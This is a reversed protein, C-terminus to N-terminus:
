AAPVRRRARTAVLLSALILVPIGGFVVAWIAFDAAFRLLTAFAAIAAAFTRAPEWKALPGPIPETTSSVSLSITSYAVRDKTAKQQAALQEIQQRLQSLAVQVKLMEDVTKASAFLQLYRGEEARLALLRADLDVLQDTVDKADVSSSIVEGDLKKLAAVADDFRDAPVRMTLNASRRDNNISESLGLISGGFRRAIDRAADATEWPDDSKMAVNATVILDRDASALRAVGEAPASGQFSPINAKSADTVVGSPPMAAPTSSTAGACAAGLVVAVLLLPVTLRRRM